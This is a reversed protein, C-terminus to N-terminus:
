EPSVKVYSFTDHFTAPVVHRAFKEQDSQHCERDQANNDHREPVPQDGLEKSARRDAEPLRCAQKQKRM